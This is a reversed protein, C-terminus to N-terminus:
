TTAAAQADVSSARLRHALAVPVDEPHIIRLNNREAFTGLDSLADARWVRRQEATLGPPTLAEVTRRLDRLNREQAREIQVERKSQEALEYSQAKLNARVVSLAHQDTLLAHLTEQ